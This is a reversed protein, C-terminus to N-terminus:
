VIMLLKLALEIEGEEIMLKALNHMERRQAENDSGSEIILKVESLEKVETLESEKPLQKLNGLQGLDNGTLIRSDQVHMPLADVGIGVSILPKEIEFIADGSARCYFDSGMRGVLDLKHPDIRGDSSLIDEDLHIKVIECVVLNGASGEYGTEIVQLVKCELQVPSEKVRFPKILDSPETTFGVKEFESVGEPFDSSALSVQQVMNYTVVNIVVEPVDKINDYTHKTTKDRGRRSPSFVLIPPNAGFANFFSFPALNPVGDANMTSAFAIPRPGIAGLMTAFLKPVPLEGPIIQMKEKM